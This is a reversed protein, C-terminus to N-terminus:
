RGNDVVESGLGSSGKGFLVMRRELLRSNTQILSSAMESLDVVTRFCPNTLFMEASKMTSYM